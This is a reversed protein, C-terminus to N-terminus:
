KAFAIMIAPKGKMKKAPVTGEEEAEPEAEASETEDTVETIESRPANPDSANHRIRMRVEYEGKDVWGSVMEEIGPDTTDWIIESM